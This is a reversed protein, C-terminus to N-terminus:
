HLRLLAMKLNVNVGKTFFRGCSTLYGFIMNVKGANETLM